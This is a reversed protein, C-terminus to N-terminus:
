PAARAQDGFGPQLTAASPAQGPWLQAEDPLDLDDDSQLDVDQEVEHLDLSPVDDLVVTDDNLVVTDDDLVITDDAVHLLQGARAAVAPSEDFLEEPIRDEDSMRHRRIEVWLDDGGRAAVTIFREGPFE